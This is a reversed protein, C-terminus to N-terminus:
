PAGLREPAPGVLVDASGAVVVFPAVAGGDSVDGESTSTPPPWPRVWDGPVWDGPAEGGTTAVVDNPVTREKAPSLSGRVVVAPAAPAEGGAVVAPAAPVVKAGVVSAAPGVSPAAAVVTAGVDVAPAAPVVRAVAAVAAGAPWCDHSM